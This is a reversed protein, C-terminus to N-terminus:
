HTKRDIQRDALLQDSLACTEGKRAARRVAHISKRLEAPPVMELDLVKGACARDWDSLKFRRVQERLDADVFVRDPDAAPVALATECLPCRIKKGVLKEDVALIDQCCSCQFRSPM